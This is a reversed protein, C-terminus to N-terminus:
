FYYIIPIWYISCFNGFMTKFSGIYVITEDTYRQVDEQTKVPFVMKARHQGDTVDCNITSTKANFQPYAIEVILSAINIIKLVSFHFKFFRVLLINEKQLLFQWNKCNKKQSCQLFLLPPFQKHKMKLSFGGFFGKLFLRFYEFVEFFIFIRGFWRKKKKKRANISFAWGEWAINKNRGDFPSQRKWFWNKFFKGRLFAFSCIPTMLRWRSTLM